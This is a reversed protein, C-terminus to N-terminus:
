YDDAEDDWTVSMIAGSIGNVQVVAERGDDTDIEVLYYRGTDKGRFEIEQVTGPVQKLSLAIAEDSSVLSSSVKDNDPTPNKHPEDVDPEQIPVDDPQIEDPVVNELRKISNIEGEDAAVMLEYLGKELQVQIRYVDNEFSTSVVEGPYEALVVHTVEEESLLVPSSAWSKWVAGLTVVGAIILVVGSIWVIRKNM